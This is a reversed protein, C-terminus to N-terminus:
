DPSPFPGPFLGRGAAVGSLPGAAPLVGLDALPLHPLSWLPRLPSPQHPCPALRSCHAKAMAQPVPGSRAPALELGDAGMWSSARVGLWPKSKILNELVPLLKQRAGKPQPHPTHCRVPSCAGTFSSTSAATIRGVRRPRCGRRGSQLVEM